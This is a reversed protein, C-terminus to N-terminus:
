IYECLYATQGVAKVKFKSNGIVNFSPDFILRFDKTWCKSDFPTSVLAIIHPVKGSWGLKFFETWAIVPSRFTLLYILSEVRTITYDSTLYVTHSRRPGVWSIPILVCIMPLCCIATVAMSAVKVILVTSYNTRSEFISYALNPQSLGLPKSSPSCVYM